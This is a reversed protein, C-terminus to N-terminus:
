FFISGRNLCFSSCFTAMVISCTMLFILPTAYLLSPAPPLIVSVVDLVRFYHLIFIAFFLLSFGFTNRLIPSISFLASIKAGYKKLGRFNISVKTIIPLFSPVKPCMISFRACSMTIFSTSLRIFAFIGTLTLINFLRCCPIVANQTARPIHHAHVCSFADYATTACLSNLADLMYSRARIIKVFKGSSILGIVDFNLLSLILKSPPAPSSPPSRLRTNKPVAPPPSNNRPSVILKRWLDSFLTRPHGSRPILCIMSRWREM